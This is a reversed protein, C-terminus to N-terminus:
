AASLLSLLSAWADDVSPVVPLKPNGGGLNIAIDSGYLGTLAPSTTLYLGVTPRALAVSLHALGTDVGVVGRARALLSAAGLLSMSPPVIAAPIASALRESTRKEAANGWPLVVGIDQERRRLCEALAIWHAEPWMKDARSTAHLFVVYSTPLMANAVSPPVRLGYNVTESLAYGFIGAALRRNREVAHLDCPVAFHQDYGRAALPERATERSFGAIPGNAVRAVLASKILGQTDVITDYTERSLRAKDDKLTAWAAPSWWRKKLDRLHTTYVRRVQPHLALLAAYPTETVWDIEIEPMARALDSVVPLNHLVDGLSSLKVLLVRM